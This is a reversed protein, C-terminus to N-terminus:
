AIWAVISACIFGAMIPIFKMLVKHKSQTERSLISQGGVQIFVGASLSTCIGAILSTYDPLKQYLVLGAGVGAPTICAFIIIGSAVMWKSYEHKQLLASLVFSELSKHFLLVILILWMGFTSIPIDTAGLVLGEFFSHFLLATFFSIPEVTNTDGEEEILNVGPLITTTRQKGMFFRDIFCAVLFSLSTLTGVWPYALDEKYADFADIANMLVHEFGTSLILGASFCMLYSVILNIRPRRNLMIRIFIWPLTGAIITVIILSCISVIKIWFISVM